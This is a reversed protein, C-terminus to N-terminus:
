KKHNPKGYVISCTCFRDGTEPSSAENRHDQDRSINDLYRKCDLLKTNEKKGNSTEKKEIAVSEGSTNFNIEKCGKDIIM